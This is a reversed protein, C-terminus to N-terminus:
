PYLTTNRFSWYYGSSKRYWEYTAENFSLSHNSALTHRNAAHHKRALADLATRAGDQTLSAGMVSDNLTIVFVQNM